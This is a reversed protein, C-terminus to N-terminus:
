FNRIFEDFEQASGKQQGTIRVCLRKRIMAVYATSTDMVKAIDGPPLGIKVLYILRLEYEKFNALNLLRKTFGDYAMDIDQALKAWEDATLHFNANGAHSKIKVYLDSDEMEKMLYSRKRQRIKITANEVHLSELDLKIHAMQVKDNAAEANKLQTLLEIERRGNEELQQLSQEKQIAKAVEVLKHQKDGVLVHLNRMKWLLFVMLIGLFALIFLWRYLQMMRALSDNEEQVMKYKFRGEARTTAARSDLLQSSDALAYYRAVAETVEEWRQQKMDIDLMERAMDVKHYINKTFDKSLEFYYLASDLRQSALHYFGWQAYFPPIREMFMAASDYEEIQIYIDALREKSYPAILPARETKEALEVSQMYCFIASDVQNLITYVRGMRNAALSLQLTDSNQRALQYYRRYDAVCDDYSTQDFYLDGKQCCIWSLLRSDRAEEAVRLATLFYDVATPNDRLDRYACGSYFLARAYLRLPGHEDYYRRLSDLLLLDDDMPQMHKDKMGQQLLRLYMHSREDSGDAGEAYAAILSDAARYRGHVMASDADALLRPAAADRCAAALLVAAFFLALFRLIRKM